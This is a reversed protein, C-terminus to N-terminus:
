GILTPLRVAIDSPSPMAAIEEAVRRAAAQREGDALLSGASVTVADVSLEPGLLRLGAGADVVAAANTFHDAGRPVVLQPKGAAFAGLMTGSGGHHVVLDVHPLLASQPVWDRVRVHEPVDGLAAPDVAPGTAVLVDVPLRALGDVLTRLVDATAYATGLTVYVLPRGATREVLAGCERWGCPRVPVRDARALFDKDQLSDPCIDLVPGGVDAPVGLEAAFATYAEVMATSMDDSFMRGFTHGLAPVDHLRAALPAGLTAVDHIVVDPRHEAILPELDAVMRRPLVDGLVRGVAEPGAASGTFATRMGLGAPRACLGAKRLVPLFPEGAAFVVDHGATAAAVALPLLPYTHGHAALAAFM